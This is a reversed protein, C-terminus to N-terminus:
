SIMDIVRMADEETIGVQGNIRVLHANIEENILDLDDVVVYKDFSQNENLWALIEKAKVRSFTKKARIEETSFDPTKAFIKIDFESFIDYLHQSYGEIPMMIDDFWLRWASSMVIVAGTKNIVNKLVSVNRRDISESKNNQLFEQSNLVGDIDLFIVKM